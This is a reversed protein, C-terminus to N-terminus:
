SRFSKNDTHLYYHTASGVPLISPCTFDRYADYNAGWGIFPLNKTVVGDINQQGIKYVEDEVRFAIKIEKLPEGRCDYPMGKDQKKERVELVTSQYWCKYEDCCDVIDNKKLKM